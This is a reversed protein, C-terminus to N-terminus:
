VVAAIKYPDCNGVKGMNVVVKVTECHLFWVSLLLFINELAFPTRDIHM